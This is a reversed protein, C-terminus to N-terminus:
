LGEGERERFGLGRGGSAGERELQEIGLEDAAMDDDCGDNGGHQDLTDPLKVMSSKKKMMLHISAPRRMAATKMMGGRSCGRGGATSGGGEIRGWGRRGQSGSTKVGVGEKSEGKKGMSEMAM